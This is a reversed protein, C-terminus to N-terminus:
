YTSNPTNDPNIEGYVEEPDVNNVILTERVTEIHDLVTQYRDGYEYKTVKNQDFIFIPLFIPTDPSFKNLPMAKGRSMGNLDPVICEVEDLKRGNRYTQFAIPLEDLWSRNEPHSM